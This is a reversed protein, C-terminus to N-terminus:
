EEAHKTRRARLSRVCIDITPASLNGILIASLMGETYTSFTRMVVAALGVLAGYTWRGPDTAPATSPDCALFCAGFLFGDAVLMRAPSEMPLQGMRGLVLAAAAGGLLVGGLTRANSRHAILMTAAGALTAGIVVPESGPAGVGLISGFSTGTVVTPYSFLLFGKALLVPNFVHHGTGGFVERGFFTGFGGGVAAMWLPIDAPLILALLFAYAPSGGSMHRHRVIAFAVEVAASGSLAAVAVVHVRPGLYYGALALCPLAGLMAALLYRRTDAGSPLGPSSPTRRDDGLLVNALNSVFENM